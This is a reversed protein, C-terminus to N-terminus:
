EDKAESLDIGYERVSDRLDEVGIGDYGSEQAASAKEILRYFIDKVLRVRLAEMETWHDKVRMITDKTDDDMDMICGSKHCVPCREVDNETDIELLNESFVEMCNNCRVRREM